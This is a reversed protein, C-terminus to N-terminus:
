GNEFLYESRLRDLTKELWFTHEEFQVKDLNLLWTIEYKERLEEALSTAGTSEALEIATQTMSIVEELAEDSYPKKGEVKEKVREMWAIGEPTVGLNTVQDNRNGLNTKEEALRGKRERLDYVRRTAADYSLGLESAFFQLLPEQTNLPRLWHVGNDDTFKSNELIYELINFSAGYALHEVPPEMEDLLSLAKIQATYEKGLETLRIIKTHETADEITIIGKESLKSCVSKVTSPEPCPDISLKRLILLPSKAEIEGGANALITLFQVRRYRLNKLAVKRERSTSGPYPEVEKGAARYELGDVELTPGELLFAAGKGREAAEAAREYYVRGPITLGYEELKGYKLKRVIGRDILEQLENLYYEVERDELGGEGGFKGSVLEGLDETILAAEEAGILLILNRQEDTIEFPAEDETDSDGETTDVEQIKQDVRGTYFKEHRCDDLAQVDLGIASTRKESKKKLQLVGITKLRAITNHYGTADEGGMIERLDKGATNSPSTYWLGPQGLLFLVIREARSASESLREDTIMYDPTGNELDEESVEPPELLARSAPPRRSSYPRTPKLAAEAIAKGVLEEIRGELYEKIGEVDTESLAPASTEQSSELREELQGVREALENIRKDFAGIRRVIEADAEDVVALSETVETLRLVVNGLATIAQALQTNSDDSSKAEGVGPQEVVVRVVVESPESGSTERESM